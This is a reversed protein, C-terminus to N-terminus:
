DVEANTETDYPGKHLADDEPYINLTVYVSGDDVELKCSTRDGDIWVDITDGLAEAIKIIDPDTDHCLVIGDNWWDWAYWHAHNLSGQFEINYSTDYYNRIDFNVQM